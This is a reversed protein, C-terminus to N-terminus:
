GLNMFTPHGVVHEHSMGSMSFTYPQSMGSVYFPLGSSMGNMYLAPIDRWKDMPCGLVNDHSMGQYYGHSTGSVDLPLPILRGM